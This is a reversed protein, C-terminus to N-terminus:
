NRRAEKKTSIAFRESKDKDAELKQLENRLDGIVQCDIHELIAANLLRQHLCAEGTSLSKNVRSKGDFKLKGYISCFGKVVMSLSTQERYMKSFMACANGCTMTAENKESLREEM